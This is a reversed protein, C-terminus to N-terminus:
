FYWLLLDKKLSCLLCNALYFCLLNSLFSFLFQAYQVVIVLLWSKSTAVTLAKWKLLFSHRSVDLQKMSMVMQCESCCTVHILYILYFKMSLLDFLFRNFCYINVPAKIPWSMLMGSGLAFRNWWCFNSSASSLQGSWLPSKSAKWRWWVTIIM